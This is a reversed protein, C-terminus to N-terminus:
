SLILVDGVALDLLQDADVCWRAVVLPLAIPLGALPPPLSSSAWGACANLLSELPFDPGVSLQLLHGSPEDSRIHRGKWVGLSQLEQPGESLAELSLAAETLVLGQPLRPALMLHAFLELGSAGLQGIGLDALSQAVAEALADSVVVLMPLGSWTLRLWVASQFTEVSDPSWEFRVPAGGISFICRGLRSLDANRRSVAEGDLEALDNWGIAADPRESTSATETGRKVTM